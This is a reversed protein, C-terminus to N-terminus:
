PAVEVFNSADLHAQIAARVGNKDVNVTAAEADSLQFTNTESRDGFPTKVNYSVTVSINGSTNDFTFSVLKM